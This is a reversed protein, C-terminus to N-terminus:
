AVRKRALLMLEDPEVMSSKAEGYPPVDVAELELDYRSVNDTFFPATFAITHKEGFAFSKKSAFVAPREIGTCNPVFVALLGGPKLVTELDVFTSRLEPLHELVHNAFVVDFRNRMGRLAAMSGVYELGLKERGFRARQPDVEFAAADFGAARFQWAGYGWSAGFDLLTRGPVLRRILEIKGTLDKDTSRFGSALMAALEGEGPLQTTVGHDEVYEGGYFDLNEEASDKPYRFCLGCDECRRLQLILYKRGIVRTRRADCHPCRTDQGRLQKSLTPLIFQWRAM